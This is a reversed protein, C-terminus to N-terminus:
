SNGRWSREDRSQPTIESCPWNQKKLCFVAYSTKAHSSNLRTSKRDLSPMWPLEEVLQFGANRPDFGAWIFLSVVFTALSTWLAFIPLADHLSLAYLRAPAAHHRCVVPLARVCPPSSPPVPPRAGALPQ